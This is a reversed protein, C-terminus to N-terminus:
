PDFQLVLRDPFPGDYKIFGGDPARRLNRLTALERVLEPIQIQNVFRGFCQHMGHGFQLDVTQPRTGIFEDAREVAAPDFMAAISMTIVKSGAPVRKKSGNTVAIDAGNACHRQLFPAQPNFRLAEFAYTSVADVDDAVALKHLERMAGPRRLLQDIINVVATNTTDVSGIIVGGINRRIGDDDLATIPDSQMRILRTLFDDRTSGGTIESKIRAILPALYDHLQSASQDAAARVWSFDNPNLFLDGFIDRLWRMMSEEDPGPTGFYTNLLRTPVLRAYGKSIEIRGTSKCRQVIDAALSRISKRIEPLDDQHVAQRLIGAERDYRASRDMGLIFDGGVRAMRPANIQSITFETDRDLVEIICDRTSVVTIKGITVVPSISRFLWGFWRLLSPHRVLFYFIGSQIREKLNM